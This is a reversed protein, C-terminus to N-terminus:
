LLNTYFHRELPCKRSIEEFSGDIFYTGSTDLFAHCNTVHSLDLDHSTVNLM